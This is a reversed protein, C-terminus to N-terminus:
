NKAKKESHLFLSHFSFNAMWSFLIWDFHIIFFRKEKREISLENQQNCVFSSAVAAAADIFSFSTCSVKNSLNFHSCINRKKGRNEIMQCDHKKKMQVFIKVRM